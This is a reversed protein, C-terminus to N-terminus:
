EVVFDISIGTPAYKGPIVERLAQLKDAQRADLQAGSGTPFVVRVSFSSPAGLSGWPSVGFLVMGFGLQSIADVRCDWGTYFRIFNRLGRATGRTKLLSPQSKLHERWNRVTAFPSLDANLMTAIYQLSETRCKDIDLVAHVLDIQETLWGDGVNGCLRLLREMQGNEKFSVLEGVDNEVTVDKLKTKKDLVHYIRPLVDRMIDALGYKVLADTLVVPQSM